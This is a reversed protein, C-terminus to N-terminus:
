RQVVFSSFLLDEIVQDGEESKMVRQLEALAHQRIEEKGGASKIVEAESDTFVTVLADLLMPRHYEVLDAASASSVRVDVAVKLYKLRSLSPEGYNIVMAKTLRVYQTNDEALLEQQVFVISAFILLLRKM